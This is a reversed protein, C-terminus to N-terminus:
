SRLLAFRLTGQHHPAHHVLMLPASEFRCAVEQPVVHRQLIFRCNSLYSLSLRILPHSIFSNLKELLNHLCNPKWFTGFNNTVVHPRLLKTFNLKGFVNQLFNQTFGFTNQSSLDNYILSGSYELFLKFHSPM